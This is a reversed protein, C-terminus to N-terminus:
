LFECNITWVKYIICMSSTLLILFPKKSMWSLQQFLKIIFLSFFFFVTIMHIIEWFQYLIVNRSSLGHVWITIHLWSIWAITKNFIYIYIYIIVVVLCYSFHPLTGLIWKWTILMSFSFQQLYSLLTLISSMFKFKM